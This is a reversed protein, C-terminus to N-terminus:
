GRNILDDVENQLHFLKHDYYPTLDWSRQLVKESKQYEGMKFLGLGYTYLFSANEPCQEALSSIIEMGEELNIDNTILFQAFEAALDNDESGLLYAKRFYYEAIEFSGAKDYVGAYWLFQIAEPWGKQEISKRIEELYYTAQVSDEQSVACIAQWYDFTLKQEPWCARGDEFVKQEKKHSGINHYAGGLLIYTWAWPHNDMKKLLDISKEFGEISEEWLDLNFYIWGVAYTMYVSHPHHELYQRTYELQDLPKKDTASKVAHVMLQMDPPLRDIREFAQYAWYKSQVAQRQDGYCYALKMMASVFNSDVQIAKHFFDAACVYDLRHHCDMGQLYYKYAEPSNTFVNAVEFVQNQKM